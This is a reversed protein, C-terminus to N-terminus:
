TTSIHKIIPYLWAALFTVGVALALGIFFIVLPKRFFPTPRAKTQLVCVHKGDNNECIVQTYGDDFINLVVEVSDGSCRICHTTQTHVVKSSGSINSLFQTINEINKGM